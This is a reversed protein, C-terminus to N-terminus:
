GAAASAARGVLEHAPRREVGAVRLIDAATAQAYGVLVSVSISRARREVTTAAHAARLALECSERGGDPGELEDAVAETAASLERLADILPGPVEDGIMLARVAGRAVVQVDTVMLDIPLGASRYAAFRGRLRRRRPAFRAAEDGADLAQELRGWRGNVRRALLLAREAAEIDHADLAAASDGLTESLERLIARAADRVVRVPQLPFLLQSFLLAVGGGVLADVLRTPAYNGSSPAITAILTASVAAETLLLRGAGLAIATLMAAGVIVALQVIGVGFVHILLDGLGVGLAVGLMMEVARRARQGRTAGLAMIAAVPAFFPTHHGLVRSALLWAITAALATQVTPWLAGRARGMGTQATERSQAWAADLAERRRETSLSDLSTALREAVAPRTRSGM